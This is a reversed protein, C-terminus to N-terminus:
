IEEIMLRQSPSPAPSLSTKTDVEVNKRVQLVFPKTIIHRQTRPWTGTHVPSASGRSM